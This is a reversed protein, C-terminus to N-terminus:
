TFNDTEYSRLIKRETHADMFFSEGGGNYIRLPAHEAPARTEKMEMSFLSPSPISENCRGGGSCNADDSQM